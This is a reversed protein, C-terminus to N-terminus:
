GLRELLEFAAREASEMAGELGMSLVATHEGAFHIRAHPQLIADGHRRVDGPGRFAFTGRSWPRKSWCMIAGPEVRGATSPRIRVLEAMVREVVEDDPTRRCFENAQGSLYVWLYEGQQSQWKMVRPLMGDGWISPPLGDEEWYAERVPLFVSTGHGYPIAAVAARQPAPLAPHIDIDRLVTLPVTCVVHGARFRRGDACAVQADDGGTDISTVEAGLVLDGHLSGRMAEILRSMGGDIFQLPGADRSFERVKQQRLLWLLSMDDLHDSMLGVSLLDLMHADAGQARLYEGYGIDWAAAVEPELWSELSALPSQRPMFAASLAFPPRDRLNGALLNERAQAWEAPSMLRDGVHLAYRISEGLWGHLGLGFREVQALVRAYMPGVEFGGAEPRGDVTDFTFIRGGPRSDAELLLVSLGAEELLMAAYLGSIGAGVVIVDADRGVAARTCGSMAPAAAVAASAGLWKLMQRRDLARSM